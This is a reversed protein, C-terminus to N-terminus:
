EENGTFSLLHRYHEDAAMMSHRLARQEKAERRFASQLLRLSWGSVAKHGSRPNMLSKELPSLLSMPRADWAAVWYGDQVFLPQFSYVPWDALVGQKLKDLCDHSASLVGIGSAPTATSTENMEDFALGSEDLAALVPLAEDATRGAYIVVGSRQAQQKVQELLYTIAEASTDCIVSPLPLDTKTGAKVRLHYHEQIEAAIDDARDVLAYLHRYRQLFRRYNLRGSLSLNQGPRYGERVALYAKLAAHEGGPFLGERLILQGDQFQYDQEPQLCKFATLALVVQQELGIQQRLGQPLTESLLLLRQRGEATLEVAGNELTYDRSDALQGAIGALAYTLMEEENLEMRDSAVVSTMASECLLSRGDVLIAHNLGPLILSRSIGSHTLCRKIRRTQEGEYADSLRRDRLYDLMLESISVHTIGDAYLATRQSASMRPQILGAQVELQRYFSEAVLWTEQAGAQTAHVVQVPTGSLTLAAAAMTAVRWRSEVGPWALCEGNLLQEALALEPTTVSSDPDLQNLAPSLLQLALQARQRPTDAQELLLTQLGKQDASAKLHKLVSADARDNALQKSRGQWFAGLRELLPSHPEFAHREPYLIASRVKM